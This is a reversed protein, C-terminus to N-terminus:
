EFRNKFKNYLSNMLLMIIGVSLFVIARTLTSSQSLDFFILRVICIALAGLAVYRFHQKKLVISIIFIMLCELVWLLTLLSKDFTWFLFIATCIILPYFVYINRRKQVKDILESFFLLSKPLDIKEFSCKLYFYLLFAFQFLLSVTGYVWPQAYIYNSPVVYTSTIFATQFAAVWYMILSYFLLRSLKEYKSNGLVAFIFSMVVWIIPQWIADVELAITLISFLILLEILLPHLYDWSKYTSTEPKKLTACYIFVGIALFEILLRIKFIGIYSELQIHVLLHRILFAVFFLYTLHLMYRDVNLFNSRKGYCFLSISAIVASLILWIVGPIIESVSEFMYYTILLLFAGFFYIGIFAVSKNLENGFPKMFSVLYPWNIDILQARKYFAILYSLSLVIFVSTLIFTQNPFPSTSITNIHINYYIYLQQIISLIFLIFSYVTIRAISESKWNALVFIISAMGLWTLPLYQYNLEFSITSFTFILVLEVLVPHLYKWSKYNSSVEKKTIAWIVFVIIAFIEVLIRGKIPGWSEEFYLNIFIHRILFIGILAYGMHLIYREIQHYQFSKKSILKVVIIALLSLFLWSLSVALISIPNLLFYSLLTLQITFLYVGIWNLYKSLVNVFSYKISLASTILIPLGVVLLQLHSQDQIHYLEYWNVIHSGVLFIITIFAFEVSQIKNRIFLVVLLLGVLSYVSWNFEFLHIYYSVFLTGVIIGLLPHATKENLKINLPSYLGSIDLTNTKNSYFLFVTGLVASALISGAQKYLLLHNSNDFNAFCYYLLAIGILNITVSGIKYLLVDNEKKAIFLFLLSEIFITALIISQDVQWRFLTTLSIIATLQAILTDTLYLWRIDLKKARRALLFAAISGGALVFTSVQSGNSYLYLGLGFYFWNVLHVIFPVKEFIKKSYAERYHVLAVAIGVILITVIGNIRNLNSVVHNLSLWYFLHFIFFSSITLLLHYDWKERYTLAVGFLTIIGGVILFIPTSPLIWVGVLSLLVHLSALGQNNGIYGLFLNAIVGFSLIVLQMTETEVWKLGPIAISGACAFLFIAGASSRLWLALKIWDTKKRLYFFLCVLITAFGSILIFRGLASIKLAAYIGLFGVGIVMIVSGLIGTWNEIFQKELKAWLENKKKIKPATNQVTKTINNNSYPKPNIFETNIIPKPPIIVSPEEKTIIFSPKPIEVELTNTKSVDKHIEVNEKKEPIHQNLELQKIRAELKKIYLIFENHKNSLSNSKILLYVFLVFAIFSFFAGM